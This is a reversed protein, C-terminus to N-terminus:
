QLQAAWQVKAARELNEAADPRPRMSAHWAGGVGRVVGERKGRCRAAAENFRRQLPRGPAQFSFNEAADPRPRMSAVRGTFRGKRKNGNEAADPRPRMSARERRRSAIRDVDTKRPM